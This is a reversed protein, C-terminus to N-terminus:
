AYYIESYADQLNMCVGVISSDGKKWWEYAVKGAFQTKEVYIGKSLAFERLFKFTLRAM